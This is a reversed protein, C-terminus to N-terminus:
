PNDEKTSGLLLWLARRVFRTAETRTNIRLVNEEPKPAEQVERTYKRRTAMM